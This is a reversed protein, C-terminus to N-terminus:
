VVFQLRDPLIELQVHVMQHITVFPVQAEFDLSLHQAELLHNLLFFPEESHVHHSLTDVVGGSGDDCGIGHNANILNPNRVNKGFDESERSGYGM